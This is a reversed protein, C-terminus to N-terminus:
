MPTTACTRRISLARPAGASQRTPMGVSRIARREDRVGRAPDPGTGAGCSACGTSARPSQARPWCHGHPGRRSTPMDVRMWSMGRATSEDAHCPRGHLFALARSGSRSRAPRFRRRAGGGDCYQSFTESFGSMPRAILWLKTQTWGPLFSTWSTRSVAPPIVAYATTFVRAGTMLASQPPLRRAPLFLPLDM